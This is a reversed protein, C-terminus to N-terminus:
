TPRKEVNRLQKCAFRFFLSSFRRM